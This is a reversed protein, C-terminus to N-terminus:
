SEKSEANSDETDEAVTKEKAEEVIAEEAKKLKNKYWKVGLEGLKVGGLAALCTVVGAAFSKPSFECVKEAVAGVVETNDAVTAVVNEAANNIMENM